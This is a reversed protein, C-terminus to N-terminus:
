RAIILKHAEVDNKSVIHIYNVGSCLKSVDLKFNQDRVNMFSQCKQGKADYVEITVEENLTQKFQVTVVEQAPNPAITATKEANNIPEFTSTITPYKRIVIVTDNAPQWITAGSPLGSGQVDDTLQGMSAVNQFLVTRIEISDPNVEIFFFGDLSEVDRTFNPIPTIPTRLPAGWSGDGLFVAGTTDDRILKEHNGAATSYKLGYTTKLVHAHSELVLRVDNPELLPAWCDIMDQDPSYTVIGGIAGTVHPVMPRHYQVIKWHPTNSPTNHQQLDNTFWTTQTTNTCADEESNLTYLRFLGGGFNTAYYVSPNSVDFLKDMDVADEHNGLTHVMPTMRGDPGVTLEWDTFWDEWDDESDYTFPVDYNRIYDGNFAIFDPRIKAILRNGEQRAARCNCSEPFVAQRSDGGSVFSMPDNPDDSLTMFSYRPTVNNSADRVVFYYVKNPQLGSLRVFHNNLAKHSTTRDINQSNAYAAWNTGNDITDYYLIGSLGSWGVVMSTSPDDRYTLRFKEPQAYSLTTLILFLPLVLYKHM